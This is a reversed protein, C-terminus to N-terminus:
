WTVVRPPSNLVRALVEESPCLCFELEGGLSLHLYETLMIPPCSGM